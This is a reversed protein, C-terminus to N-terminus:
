GILSDNSRASSSDSFSRELYRIIGSPQICVRMRTRPERTDVSQSAPSVNGANKQRTDLKEDRTERREVGEEEEERKRYRQAHLALSFLNNMGSVKKDRFPTEPTQAVCMVRGCGVGVGRKRTM